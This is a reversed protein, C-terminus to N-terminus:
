DGARAGHAGRGARRAASPRRDARRRARRRPLRRARAARRGTVLDHGADRRREAAGGVRADRQGVARCACVSCKTVACPASDTSRSRSARGRRGGGSARRRCPRRRRPARARAAARPGGAAPSAPPSRRSRCAARRLAHTSVSRAPARRRRRSARLDARRGQEDDALRRGLGGAEGPEPRRREHVREALGGSSPPSGGAGRWGTDHGSAM